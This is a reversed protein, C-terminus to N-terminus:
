PEKEGMEGVVGLAHKIRAMACDRGLLETLEYLGPGVTKGTLALRTSNVLAGIKIENEAAAREYSAKLVDRNWTEAHEM